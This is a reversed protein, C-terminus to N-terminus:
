DEFGDNFILTSTSTIQFLQEGGVAYLEGDESEGYGTTTFPFVTGVNFSNWGSGRTTPEAAWLIGTCWDSYFYWGQMGIYDDGRYRFGGIVSCNNNPFPDHPLQAIPFEYASMPQCNQTQFVDPGEYCPWGFNEGGIGGAPLYNVEEWAGEGVDGIFLDGNDRDFSFRWPNRLGTLWIEDAGAVGVFPNGAPIGYNANSDAPFDDTDVDIRLLNGLLTDFDQADFWDGGGDGSSIYLFGDPGFHMDGGNHNGATQNFGLVMMASNPDAVNADASVSYRAVVTDGALNTYNIYFFGNNSYDPHFALGLLGQEGGGNTIPDIDLFPTGLVSNGDWIRIQGTQQIIFLRNSGDGANTLGIAQSLGGGVSVVNIADPQAHILSSSGLCILILFHILRM